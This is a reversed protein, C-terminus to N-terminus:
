NAPDKFEIKEFKVKDIVEIKLKKRAEPIYIEKVEYTINMKIGKHKELFNVMQASCWFSIEQGFEDLFIAHNYDGIESRLYTGMIEKTITAKEKAHVLGILAIFFVILLLICIIRHRNKM